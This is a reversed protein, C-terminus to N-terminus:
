LALLAIAQYRTLADVLERHMVHQVRLDISLEVPQLSRDRAFGLDQLLAVERQDLHRELGAIGVNDVNVAGLIHAAVNGGPYFRRSESVFDIGPIGM